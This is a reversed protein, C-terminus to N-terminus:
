RAVDSREVDDVVLGINVHGALPVVVVWSEVHLLNDVVELYLSSLGDM